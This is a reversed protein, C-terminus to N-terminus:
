KVGQTSILNSLNGNYEDLDCSGTVGCISGSGTLWYTWSSLCSCSGPGGPDLGWIGLSLGPAQCAAACSLAIVPHLFHSTKAKVDTSWTNFWATYSPQCSHGSFIEFDVAPFISKGDAIIYPGAFNWFYNAEAAPCNLEPHAFHYAGMQLGAAKGNTMYNKFKPDQYSTGETAKAFAFVAGCSHVSAWNISGQYSSVDIGLVTAAQTVGFATALFLAGIVLLKVKLSAKM